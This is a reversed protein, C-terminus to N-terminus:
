TRPARRGDTERQGRAAALLAPELTAAVTEWSSREAARRHGAVGMREALSRDVVVKELSAALAQPDGRPVVLGTEGHVVASPLDGVDSTVVARAMTMALHVVGSQYGALYPTVVVRAQAFIAAVEEIPVYRDVVTVRDGHGAAWRLVVDPDLDAPAPTGAITLRAGPLRGALEDFAEMLVSLGKVKRWDGFFLVREEEAPPPPEGAFLREDGHPVVVLPAPPWLEEFEARAREGHVVILDCRAYVRRILAISRSTTVYLDDGRWRNFPRVNHCVFVLAPHGPFSTLALLAGSGIALSIDSGLVMADYGGRLVESVLRAWARCLRLAVGARRAQYALRSRPEPGTSRVHPALVPRMRAAGRHGTLENGRPVLLDVDHGREGLADALQTTYHLIGGHSSIEALALRMRGIIRAPGAGGPAPHVDGEGRSGALGVDASTSPAM